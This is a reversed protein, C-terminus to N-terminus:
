LFNKLKRKMKKDGTIKYITENLDKSVSWYDPFIGFTEGHYEPYFDRVELYKMNGFRVKIGSNPLFMNFINGFELVGGTNTGIVFVREGFVEKFQLIAWEAASSTNKDTIFIIKGDFHNEGWDMLIADHKYIIKKPNEKQAELEKFTEFTNKGIDLKRHLIIENVCPSSLEYADFMSNAWEDTVYGLELSASIDKYGDHLALLFRGPFVVYGGSNGRLDIIINQKDQWEVSIRLIRNIQVLNRDIKQNHDYSPIFTNISVYGSNESEVSSSFGMAVSKSPMEAKVSIEKEDNDFSFKFKKVDSIDNEDLLVGIRFIDDGKAPYLFLNETSGTYIKGAESWEDEKVVYEDEIKKVYVKTFAIIKPASPKYLFKDRMIFSFHSDNVYESLMRCIELVFDDTQINSKGAFKQKLNLKFKEIDFGKKIMDDYGIYASQLVYCLSDLDEDFEKPLLSNLNKVDQNSVYVKQPVVPLESVLEAAFCQAVFIISIFIFIAKKM